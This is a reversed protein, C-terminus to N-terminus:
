DTGFETLLEDIETQAKEQFDALRKKADEIISSVPYVLQKSTGGHSVSQFFFSAHAEFLEEDMSKLANHVVEEDAKSLRVIQFVQDTNTSKVEQLVDHDTEITIYTTETWGLGSADYWIRKIGAADLAPKAAALLHMIKKKMM